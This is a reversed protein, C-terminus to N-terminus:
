FRADVGTRSAVAVDHDVHVIWQVVTAEMKSAM